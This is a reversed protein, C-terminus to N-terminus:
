GASRGCTASRRRRTSCRTSWRRRARRVGPAVVVRRRAAACPAAPRDRHRGAAAITGTGLGGGCCMTVLGLEADRRELEALITAFLRAGTAGVPPRARDRRRQRQRTDMDPELERQWALVVSRVGRQGRVPRHRRDGTGHPRAAQAHGPDARHAHHDPRRRRDGPRRDPRAATLGLREAGARALGAAGGAAGDSLQSSTGATIAATRASRRDQLAALAELTTGPRIGQDRTSARRRRRSRSSRASSAARRAHRRPAAPALARAFEDMEERSIDWQEAIREASEGQPSSTSATACSRRGRTATSSRRDQVRRTSRSTAWTSSARRRDVLRPHRVRGAGAGYRSPRSRPAAAGTSRPRPCRSRTAPRCGPTARSTARSSASRRPAASSWTRSTRRPRHRHAGSRRRPLGGLLTTPTPTASGGKEPHARGIPTRVAEVILM